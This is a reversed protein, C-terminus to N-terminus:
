LCVSFEFMCVLYFFNYRFGGFLCFCTDVVSYLCVALETKRRWVCLRSVLTAALAQWQGKASLNAGSVVFHGDEANSQQKPEAMKM